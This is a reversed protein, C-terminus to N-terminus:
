GTATIKHCPKGENYCKLKQLKEINVEMGQQNGNNDVCFCDNRRCQWAQFNGNPCCDPLEVVGANALLQRARACNCDMNKEEPEDIEAEYDDIQKGDPDVCIKKSGALQIRLFKGDPQCFPEKMETTQNENAEVSMAYFNYNTECDTSYKGPTHKSPDFCMPHNERIEKELVIDTDAMPSGTKPDVCLCAANEGIVCQLNDFSGIETCRSVIIQHRTDLTNQAKWANTSCGCSMKEEDEYDLYPMEGFLREGTPARCYCISGPICQYPKFFGDDDCQPRVETM